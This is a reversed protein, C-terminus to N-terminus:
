KVVEVATTATHGMVEPHYMEEARAPPAIFSGLTTARVLYTYTYKGAWLRDAFLLMRDDRKEKHNWIWSWHSYGGGSHGRGGLHLGGSSTKLQMDVIEFGAPLPDDVVVYYRRSPATITLRVRVLKGGRVRYRGSPLREVSDKGSVPEYTRTVVLGQQEAKLRLTRPTYRLGMRYYLRGAGKKQVILRRGKQRQLFAM